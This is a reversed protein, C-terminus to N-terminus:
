SSNQRSVFATVAFVGKGSGTQKLNFLLSATTKARTHGHWVM